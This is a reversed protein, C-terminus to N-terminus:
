SPEKWPPVPEHEKIASSAATCWAQWAADERRWAADRLANIRALRRRWRLHMVAIPAVFALICLAISM